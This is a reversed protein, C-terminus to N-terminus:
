CGIDLTIWGNVGGVPIWTRSQEQGYCISGPNSGCETSRTFVEFPPNLPGVYASFFMDPSSSFEQFTLVQSEQFYKIAPSLVSAPLLKGIGHPGVGTKLKDM